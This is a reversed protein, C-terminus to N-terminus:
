GRLPVVTEDGPRVMSELRRGWVALARRKEDLMDYRDYVEATVGRPAHNLVAGVVDRSM